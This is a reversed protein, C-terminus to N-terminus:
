WNGARTNAIKCLADAASHSLPLSCSVEVDHHTLGVDRLIKEPLKAFSSRLKRRNQLEALPMLINQGLRSLRSQHNDACVSHDTEFNTM